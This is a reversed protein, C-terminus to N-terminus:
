RLHRVRWDLEFRDGPETTLRESSGGADSFYFQAGSRPQGVQAQAAATISSLLLILIRPKM